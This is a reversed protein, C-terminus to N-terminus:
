YVGALMSQWLSVFPGEVQEPSLFCLSTNFQEPTFIVQPDYRKKLNPYIEENRTDIAQRCVRNAHETRKVLERAAPPALLEHSSVRLFALSFVLWSGFLM